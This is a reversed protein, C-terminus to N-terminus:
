LESRPDRIPDSDNGLLQDCVHQGLLQGVYFIEYFPFALSLVMIRCDPITFYLSDIYTGLDTNHNM